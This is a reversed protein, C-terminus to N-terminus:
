GYKEVIRTVDFMPDNIKAEDSIDSIMYFCEMPNFNIWAEGKVSKIGVKEDEMTWIKNERMETLYKWKPDDKIDVIGQLKSIALRMMNNKEAYPGYKLKREWDKVPFVPEERASIPTRYYDHAM